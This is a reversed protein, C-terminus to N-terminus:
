GRQLSSQRKMYPLKKSMVAAYLINFDLYLIFSGRESQPNVFSNKAVTFPRICTTLGGRVSREIICTLQPDSILELSNIIMKLLADYAYGSLSVSNIIGFRWTWETIVDALLVVDVRLYYGLYDGFNRCGAADWVKHALAYEEETITEGTLCSYFNEKLPPM